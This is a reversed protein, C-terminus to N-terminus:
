LCEAGWAFNELGPQRLLTHMRGYRIDMWYLTDTQAYTNFTIVDGPPLIAQEFVGERMNTTLNRVAGTNLDLEHLDHATSYLLRTQSSTLAPKGLTAIRETLRKLQGDGIDLTDVAYEPGGPYQRTIVIRDGPLWYLWYPRRAGIMDFSFDFAAIQEIEGTHIDALSVQWGEGAQRPAPDPTTFVIRRSDPSWAVPLDYVSGADLTILREGSEIDLIVLGELQTRLALYRSDPSWVAHYAHYPVAEALINTEGTTTNWLQFRISRTDFQEAVFALYDGNPSWLPNYDDALPSSSINQLDPASERAIYIERNGVDALVAALKWDCAATRARWVVMLSLLGWVSTLLLAFTAVRRHTRLKM